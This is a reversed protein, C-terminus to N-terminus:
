FRFVIGISLRAHNQTTSFFRTQVYDRGPVAM